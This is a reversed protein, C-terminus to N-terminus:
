RKARTSLARKPMLAVIGIGVVNIHTFLNIGEALKFKFALELLNGRAASNGIYFDGIHAVVGLSQLLNHFEDVVINLVSFEISLGIIAMHAAKVTFDGNVIIILPFARSAVVLVM